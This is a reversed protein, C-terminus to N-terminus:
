DLFRGALKAAAESVALSARKVPAPPQPVLGDPIAEFASRAVRTFQRPLHLAVNVAQCDSAMQTPTSADDYPLRAHSM